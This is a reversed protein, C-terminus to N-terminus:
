VVRNKQTLGLKLLKSNYIQIVRWKKLENILEEIKM